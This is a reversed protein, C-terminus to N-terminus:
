LHSAGSLSWLLAVGALVLAIGLAGLWLDRRPIM